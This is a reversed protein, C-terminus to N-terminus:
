KQEQDENEYLATSLEQTETEAEAVEQFPVSLKGNGEEYQKVYSSLIMALAKAHQLSMTVIAQDEVYLNETDAASIRAFRISLDWTTMGVESNNVYYVKFNEASKRVLKRAQATAPNLKTEEPM